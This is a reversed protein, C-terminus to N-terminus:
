IEMKVEGLFHCFNLFKLKLGLVIYKKITLKQSENDDINQNTFIFSFHWISIQNVFFIYLMSDTRMVNTAPMAISMSKEQQTLYYRNSM